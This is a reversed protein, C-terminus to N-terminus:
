ARLRRLEKRVELMEEMARDLRDELLQIHVARPTGDTPACDYSGRAERIVPSRIQVPVQASRARNQADALMRATRRSPKDGRKLYLLTRRSVGIFEALVSDNADGIAARITEIVESM